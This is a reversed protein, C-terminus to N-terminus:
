RGRHSPITNTSKMMVNMALSTTSAIPRHTQEQGVREEANVDSGASTNRVTVFSSPQLLRPTLRSTSWLAIMNM